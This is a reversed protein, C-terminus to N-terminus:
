QQEELEARAALEPPVAPMSPPDAPDFLVPKRKRLWRGARNRAIGFLWSSFHDPRRGERLARFAELFTEQVLDEVVDSRGVRKLLFAGVPRYYRHVLLEFAEADGRVTREVLDSESHPTDM